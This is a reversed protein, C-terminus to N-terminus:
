VGVILKFLVNILPAFFQWLFFIFFILVLLGWREMTEAIHHWKFPLITLLIKSGDLPPIPVLNFIFLVINILVVISALELFAPPLEAGFFRIMLGFLVALLLNTVVGAGAVATEAWRGKLNYPNYPVPKAWGFIFGGAFYSLAPLIFSGFAELHKIPNITLRGALRATPDGFYEAVYGHSLEHAVVSMILVAIQFIFAIADGDM